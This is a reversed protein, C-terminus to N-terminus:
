SPSRLPVPVVIGCQAHLVDPVRGLPVGAPGIVLDRLVLLTVRDARACAQREVQQPEGRAPALVDGAESRLMHRLTTDPEDLALVLIARRDQDVDRRRTPM